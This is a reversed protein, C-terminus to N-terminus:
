GRVGTTGNAGGDDDSSGGTAADYQKAIWKKAKMTWTVPRGAAGGGAGGAVQGLQEENLEGDPAGVIADAAAAFEAATFSLGQQKGLAAAAHAVAERSGAAQQLRAALTPDESVQQVFIAVNPNM